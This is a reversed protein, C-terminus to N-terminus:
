AKKYISILVKGDKQADIWDSEIHKIQSDDLWIRATTLSDFLAKFCNDMDRKINNPPYFKIDVSVDGELPVPRKKLQEYVSAIVENKYKRGSVSLLTRGNVNRWYSNVSPPFPLQLTIM